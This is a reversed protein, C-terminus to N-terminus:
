NKFRAIFYKEGTCLNLGFPCDIFELENFNLQVDGADEMMDEEFGLEKVETGNFVGIEDFERFVCHVGGDLLAKVAANYNDILERQKDTLALRKDM